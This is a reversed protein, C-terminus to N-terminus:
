RLSRPHHVRVDLRDPDVRPEVSLVALDLRELPGARRPDEVALGEPIPPALMPGPGIVGVQLVLGAVGVRVPPHVFGGPLREPAEEPILDSRHMLIHPEREIVSPCPEELGGEVFVVLRDGVAVCVALAPLDELAELDLAAELSGAPDAEAGPIM